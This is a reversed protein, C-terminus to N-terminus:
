LIRRTDIRDDRTHRRAMAAVMLVFVVGMAAVIGTRVISVMDMRMSFCFVNICLPIGYPVGRHHLRSLLAIAFGTVLGVLVIGFLGLNMRAEIVQNFAYSAGVAALDPYYSQVFWETPSLPRNNILARPFLQLLGDFYTPFGALTHDFNGIAQGIFALGGFETSAPSFALLIDGSTITAMWQSPPTNRVFGYVFFTLGLVTASIIQPWTFRRPLMLGGVGLMAMLPLRRDGLILLDVFVYAALTAFLLMRQRNLRMGIRREESVLLAAAVGFGMALIGRLVTLVSTDGAYLDARSISGISTGYSWITLSTCILFLAMCAYIAASVMERDVDPAIDGGSMDKRFLLYGATVFILFSVGMDALDGMLVPDLNLRNGFLAVESFAAFVYLGSFLLYFGIPHSSGEKFTCARWLYHLSLVGLLLRVPLNVQLQGVALAVIFILIGTVYYRITPSM